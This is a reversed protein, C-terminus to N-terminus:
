KWTGNVGLIIVRGPSLVRGSRLVYRRDGANDVRITGMLHPGLKTFGSIDVTSYSPLTQNRDIRSGIYRVRTTAGLRSGRHWSLWADARYRPLFDLPQTGINPAFADTFSWNAGGSVPHKSKVEVQADVGRITLDGTNILHNLTGDFRILGNTRRLYTASRLALWSAPRMEVIAEGFTAKEPGLEDNGIDIRFRERLTPTRGKRAVVLTLTLSKVPSYAGSLKAEPWPSAGLGIPLAVGVAGDIKVKGREYQLASAIEGLSARGTVRQNDYGLVNAAESNLVASTIVHLDKGLPRNVVAAVGARNASLNESRVADTMAPDDYVISDRTLTSADARLQVRWKSFRDDATVGVRVTQEGDILLLDSSGDEGPPVLYRRNQVWVDTRIQRKGRRYELRAIGSAARRGEDVDAVGGMTFTRASLIGSASIRLALRKSLMTRATASADAAPLSHGRLRAEVRRPGVADRTHVEIVGGPAGTGDIPSGPSASVRIQVIDTVPISTLDFNGYYPDAVSMGDILIAVSGKRAGRLDLQRGGRGAERVQLEPLLELAEALNTAGRQALQEGSLRLTTDRDYPKDPREGWVSIVESGVIAPDLLWEDAKPEPAATPATEESHAAPVWLGVSLAVPLLM